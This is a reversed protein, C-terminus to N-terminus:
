RSLSISYYTTTKQDQLGCIASRNFFFAGQGGLLPFAILSNEEKFLPYFTTRRNHRWQRLPPIIIRIKQHTHSMSGFWITPLLTNGWFSDRAINSFPPCEGHQYLSIGSSAYGQGRGQSYLRPIGNIQFDQLIAPDNQNRDLGNGLV